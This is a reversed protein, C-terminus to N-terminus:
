RRRRQGRRRRASRFSSRHQQRVQRDWNAEFEEILDDDDVVTRVQEEYDENVVDSVIIRQIPPIQRSAMDSAFKATQIRTERYLSLRFSQDLSIDRLNFTAMGSANIEITPRFPISGFCVLDISPHHGRPRLELSVLTFHVDQYANRLLRQRVERLTTNQDVALDQDEALCDAYHQLQNWNIGKMGDMSLTLSRNRASVCPVFDSCFCQIEPGQRSMISLRLFFATSHCFNADTTEIKAAFNPDLGDSPQMAEEEYFESTENLCRWMLVRQRASFGQLDSIASTNRSEDLKTWVHKSANRLFHCTSDLRALDPLELFSFILSLPGSSLTDMTASHRLFHISNYGRHHKYGRNNNKPKRFGLYHM